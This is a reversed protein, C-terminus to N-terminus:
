VSTFGARRMAKVWDDHTKRLRKHDRKQNVYGIWILLGTYFAVLVGNVLAAVLILEIYRMM